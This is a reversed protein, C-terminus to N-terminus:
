DRKHRFTSNPFISCMDANILNSKNIKVITNLEINYKQYLFQFYEKMTMNTKNIITKLKKKKKV